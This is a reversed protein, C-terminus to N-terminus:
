NGWGSPPKAFGVPFAKPYHVQKQTEFVIGIKELNPKIDYYIEFEAMPYSSGKEFEVNRVSDTIKTGWTTAANFDPAEQKAPAAQVCYSTIGASGLSNNLSINSACRLNNSGGASRYSIKSDNDPLSDTVVCSANENRNTPVGCTWTDSYQWPSNTTWTAGGYWFPNNITLLKEAFIAVAIIGSNKASGTMEKAYGNKKKTFKFAGVTDNDKRFGKIDISSYAGVVYGTGDKTAEKGDLVSLGDVSCVALVRYYNNNKIKISYEAGYNAVIYTKGNRGYMKVPKDNVLVVVEVNNKNMNEKQRSLPSKRM